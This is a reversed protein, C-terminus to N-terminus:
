IVDAFRKEMKKFSYAGILFVAVSAGAACLSPFLAPLPTGLLSARFGELPIALPNLLYLTHYRQPIQGLAYSLKYAVPSGFFLLQTVVPLIYAVDRYSVMLAATNLGAGLSVMLLMLIWIPLLLVGIRLQVHYIAMLVAMMGLAVGFDIFASPVASLPLVLRPFYIKSVLQSNGILCTSAKILIGNFLNWGLLGAYSFVFYPLGDSPLHALRGFVFSFIGAGMLPQLIVWLVGLATQKYRLKVDRSALAMLLDRFQWVDRLNLPAWGRPPRIKLYPEAPIGATKTETLASTM